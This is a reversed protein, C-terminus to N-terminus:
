NLKKEMSSNFVQGALGHLVLVEDYLSTDGFIFVHKNYKNNKVLM